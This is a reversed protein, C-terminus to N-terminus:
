ARAARGFGHAASARAELRQLRLATHRQEAFGAEERGGASQGLRRPEGLPLSDATRLARQTQGPRLRAAQANSLRYVCTVCVSDHTGGLTCAHISLQTQITRSLTPGSEAGNM